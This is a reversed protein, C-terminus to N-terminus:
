FHQFFVLCNTPELILISSYKDGSVLSTLLFSIGFKLFAYLSPLPSEQLLVLQLHITTTVCRRVPTPGNSQQGGSTTGPFAIAGQTYGKNLM